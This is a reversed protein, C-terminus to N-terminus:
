HPLQYGDNLTKLFAVVDQIESDNLVATDGIKRNFPADTFDINQQYKQPLDNFKDIHGNALKPYVLEPHIDRNVYFHLVDTLNHYIGNHFFTQRMAVNRLSPTKFLGCNTPQKAYDDQRTPGCIGLDYYHTNQNAKITMNRPVGLAEYQYDTFLPPRGEASPKDLHCAACNGKDPANFLDLGHKEAASLQTKGQLYFDYKSTYAAFSPSETQYRSIAFLAESLLLNDNTMASPGALEALAKVYSLKKIKKILAQPSPNAMELPNLLPGLAQGQLTNARGDWFFGGQPIMASLNPASNASKAQTTPTKALKLPNPAPVAGLVAQINGHVPSPPVRQETGSDDDIGITFNPTERSYTLNPVARAGQRDLSEGGFQATLGNAPGFAHEPSHCSACSLKGSASLSPDFFLKQGIQAMVSLPPPTIPSSPQTSSSASSQDPNHHSDCGSLLGLVLMCAMAFGTPVLTDNICQM